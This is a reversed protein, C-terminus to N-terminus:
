TLRRVRDAFEPHNERLVEADREGNVNIVHVEGREGGYADHFDYVAGVLDVYGPVDDSELLFDLQRDVNYEVLHNVVAPEDLHGTLSEVGERIGPEILEVAGVIRRPEDLGETIKRYAATVAGCGTHGVIVALRTGTHLIPYLVDGSVVEGRGTRQTVRNGINGCTFVMGPEENGWMADQLVRSDSCSVTVVPPEQSELVEDFRGAFAEVHRTNGELLELIVGDM